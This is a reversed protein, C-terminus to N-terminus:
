TTLCQGVLGLGCADCHMHLLHKRTASLTFEFAQSKRGIASGTWDQAVQVTYKVFPDLTHHLITSFTGTGNQLRKSQTGASICEQNPMTQLGFFFVYQQWSSGEDTWEILVNAPDDSDRNAVVSTIVPATGAPLVCSLGAHSLLDVYVCQKKALLCAMCLLAHMSRRATDTRSDCDALVTCVISPIPWLPQEPVPISNRPACGLVASCLCPTENPIGAEESLVHWAHAFWVLRM